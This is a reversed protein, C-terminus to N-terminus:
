QPLKPTEATRDNSVIDFKIRRQLRSPTGDHGPLVDIPEGDIEVWGCLMTHVPGAKAQPTLEFSRGEWLWVRTSSLSGWRMPLDEAANDSAVIDNAIWGAGPVFFEVWCRYGPDVEKGAKDDLTRYGYQMRAPIGRSRALAIFLSHLDTCCGGGHELCDSAAGRGCTPKTSDKSYHDAMEGVAKMLLVAQRGPDSESGCVHDAIDRIRQDAEMLPADKELAARFMAPDISGGIGATTDIPFHVGKREVVCEVQVAATPGQPNKIQVCVFEGRGESQRVIKWDGPASIVKCDLVRQWATDSPVPVWMDLTKSGQPIDNVTVTQTLRVIRTEVIEPKLLGGDGAAASLATLAIICALNMDQEKTSGKSKVYNSLRIPM